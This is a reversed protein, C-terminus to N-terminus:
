SKEIIARLTAVNSETLEIIQQGAARIQLMKKRYEAKIIPLQTLLEFSVVDVTRPDGIFKHDLPIVKQSREMLEAQQHRPHSLALESAVVFSTADFLGIMITADNDTPAQGREIETIKEDTRKGLVKTTDVVPTLYKLLHPIYALPDRIFLEPLEDNTSYTALAGIVRDVLRKDREDKPYTEAYVIDLYERLHSVGVSHVADTQEFDIAPTLHAVSVNIRDVTM